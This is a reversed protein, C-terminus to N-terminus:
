GKSVPLELQNDLTVGVAGQDHWCLVHMDHMDRRESRLSWTLTGQAGTVPGRRSM